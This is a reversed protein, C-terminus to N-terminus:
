ADRGPGAPTAASALREVGHVVRGAAVTAVVQGTLRVGALPTNRGKSAFLTPDVVWAADPDLVTVDAPAGPALTGLGAPGAAGLVREPGATLREIATPLSLDGRHVLAMVLGLATELGSIGFAAEAWACTKDVTTHPAHDTAVADIVGERLGAVLARADARTRLPPNVKALTDYAATTLPAHPDPAALDRPGVSTTGLAWEETLLLHHPTAEATVPLGREKARRVLEVAGATSVHALHLRGGTLAALEIDRAAMAEEAEAPMAALGLRSAIWGEHILGDRALGQDECHNIVPLGTVTSYSLATRMLWSDAVPDGDDSFGVAGAEALEAMDVLRTGARGRTVCGIPLVRVLDAESALRLVKEVVAANDTPPDTNPMACVTTFGGRAAARAGTAVTEKEEFGPERLHTHLDVFGPCVVLGTADLELCGDPLPHGHGSPAAWVVRGDALLLDGVLDTGTGPDLIRGGRLLLPEAM